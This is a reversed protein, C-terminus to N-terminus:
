IPQLQASLHAAMERLYQIKPHQMDLPLDSATGLVSIAYEIEHHQNLVPVCIAHIGALLDGAVTAVGESLIQQKLTLFEDWNQPYVVKQQAQHQQWEKELLPRVLAEPMFAAYARGTASNLMPMISGVRTIVSVPQNPELWQVILPGQTTWKSIQLGCDLHRHLENIQAQAAQLSDSRQICSLGFRYAQDGLAYRGDELQKAYNMRVLSVMYRHVKAPHMALKESLDKLMVPHRYTMLADLVTLGVELSQVGVQNKESM